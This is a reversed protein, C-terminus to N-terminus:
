IKMLPSLSCSLLLGRFATLVQLGRCQHPWIVRDKFWCQCEGCHNPPLFYFILRSSRHQFFNVVNAHLSDFRNNSLSRVRLWVSSLLTLCSTASSNRFNSESLITWVQRKLVFYLKLREMLSSQLILLTWYNGLLHSFDSVRIAVQPSRFNVTTIPSYNHPRYAIFICASSNPISAAKAWSPIPFLPRLPTKM